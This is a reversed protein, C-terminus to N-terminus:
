TENLNDVFRKKKKKGLLERSVDIVYEQVIAHFIICILFYFVIACLDQPGTGYSQVVNPNLENSHGYQLAVFLSSVPSTM